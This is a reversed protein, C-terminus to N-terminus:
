PRSIKDYIIKVGSYGNANRADVVQVQPSNKVYCVTISGPRGILTIRQGPCNIIDIRNIHGSNVTAIQPSNYTREIRLDKLIIRDFNGDQIMIPMGNGDHLYVDEIKISIPVDQKNAGGGFIRIFDNHIGGDRWVDSIECHSVNIQKYCIYTGNPKPTAGFEVGKANHPIDHIRVNSFNVTKSASPTMPRLYTSDTLSRHFPKPSIWKGNKWLAHAPSPILCLLSLVLAAFKM